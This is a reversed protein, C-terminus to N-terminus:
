VESAEIVVKRESLKDQVVALFGRFDRLSVDRGHDIGLILVTERGQM